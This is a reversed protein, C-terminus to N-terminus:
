CTQLPNYSYSIIYWYFSHKLVCLVVFRAHVACMFQVGSSRVLHSWRKSVGYAQPSVVCSHRMHYMMEDVTQNCAFGSLVHMHCLPTTRWEPQRIHLPPLALGTDNYLLLVCTTNLQMHPSQLFSTELPAPPTGPQTCICCRGNVLYSSQLGVHVGCGSLQRHIQVQTGPCQPQLLVHRCGWWPRRQAGACAHMFGLWVAHCM